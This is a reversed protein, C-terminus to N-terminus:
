YVSPAGITYSSRAGYSIDSMYINGFTAADTSGKVRINEMAVREISEPMYFKVGGNDLLEINPRDTRYKLGTVTIDADILNSIPGFGALTLVSDALEAAIQEEDQEDEDAQQYRQPLGASAGSAQPVLGLASLAPVFGQASVEGLEADDLAQMGGLTQSGDMVAQANVSNIPLSVPTAAVALLPQFPAVLMTVTAAALRHNSQLRLVRKLERQSIWGEQLLVEGLMLQREVQLHLADHLQDESIYGRNVLLRGLRSKQIQEHQYM